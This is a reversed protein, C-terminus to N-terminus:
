VNQYKRIAVLCQKRNQEICSNYNKFFKNNCNEGAVFKKNIDEIYISFKTVNLSIDDLLDKHLIISNRKIMSIDYIFNNVHFCLQLLAKLDDASSIEIKDKLLISLMLVDQNIKQAGNSFILVLMYSPIAFVGGTLIALLINEFLKCLSYQYFLVLIVFSFIICFFLIGLNIIEKRSM